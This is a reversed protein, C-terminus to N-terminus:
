SCRAPSWELTTLKPRTDEMQAFYVQALEIAESKADDEYRFTEGGEIKLHDANELYIAWEGRDMRHVYLQWDYYTARFAESPEEM